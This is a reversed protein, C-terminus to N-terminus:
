LIRGKRRRVKESFLSVWSVGREPGSADVDLHSAEDDWSGAAAKISCGTGTGM